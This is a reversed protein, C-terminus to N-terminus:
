LAYVESMTSASSEPSTTGARPPDNPPVGPTWEARYAPGSAVSSSRLRLSSSAIRPFVAFLPARSEDAHRRNCTLTARHRYERVKRFADQGLLRLPELPNPYSGTKKNCFM